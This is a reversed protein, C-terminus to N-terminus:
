RADSGGLNALVDRLRQRDIKGYETRPIATVDRSLSLQRPRKARSLLRQVKEHVRREIVEVEESDIICIAAAGEGLIRDPIPGVACTVIGQVSNIVAEVEEPSVMENGVNIQTKTRGTITLAGDESFEGLDGTAFTAIRTDRDTLEHLYGRMLSQGSLFIERDDSLELGVGPIPYGVPAVSDPSMESDVTMFSIRNVNETCGYGTMICATSFTESLRRVLAGTTPQGASLVYRIRPLRATGPLWLEYASPNASVGTAGHQAAFEGLSRGSATGHPWLLISAGAFLGSLTQINAFTFHPPTFVLARDGHSIDLHKAVATLNHAVAGAGLVAGKPYGTSGSTFAIFADSEGLRSPVTAPAFLDIAVESVRVTRISSQFRQDGPSRIVIAPSLQELIIQSLEATTARRSALVVAFGRAWSALLSGVHPIGLPLSILAVAPQTGTDISALTQAIPTYAAEIQIFGGSDPSLVKGGADLIAQALSAPTVSDSTLNVSRELQSSRAQHRSTSGDQIM